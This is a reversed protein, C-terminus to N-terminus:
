VRGRYVTIEAKEGGEAFLAPFVREDGNRECFRRLNFMHNLGAMAYKNKLLEYSQDLLPRSIFLICKTKARTVTVNLRNLSYIFNAESMATEIDSVGYSAIVAQSEQGQMKDVTDVFPPHHWTMSKNLLKRILRIQAHHPCVIFLGSGWFQKHGKLTDPFTENTKHNIMCKKLYCALRATLDAEVMNDVTARVNDVICLVLPYDPDLAWKLFESGEDEAADCPDTILLKRGAIKATAPIYGNGYLTEAPFRSLTTNMRFNELLQCTYVNGSDRYRLYSFVSDYLGPLGDEPEPYEGQILPPLQMDDGALVLRGDTKLIGIVLSFEGFKMQSTEDVVLMDFQGLNTEYKKIAYVTGGLILYPETSSSAALGQSNILDFGDQSQETLRDLKGLLVDDSLGADTLNDHIEWLLNEIATHTFATVLIRFRKGASKYAQILAVVSKALFHTKGTGPPGWILTMRRTLVTDFAKEKSPMFDASRIYELAKSTIKADPTIVSSFGAPDRLLQLFLSDEEQDIEILKKFIKDSNYDMFRPHLIAKEGDEFPTHCSKYAINMIIERINGEDDVTYPSVDSASMLAPLHTPLYPRNRSQYDNMKMQQINGEESTDTLIARFSYSNSEFLGEDLPSDLEFVHAGDMTEYRYTLPIASGHEIRESMPLCREERIAMAGMFSEYRVIFGIQSLETHRFNAQSPFSFRQPYAFLRDKVQTRIGGLISGTGTLRRNVENRIADKDKEDGTKWYKFLPDSKMINSLNFWFFTNPTIQYDFGPSPLNKLIDPLRYTIHVPVALLERIVKSLVIIPYVVENAPQKDATSLVTEQFHFLLHLALPALAPVKLSDFLLRNFLTLEFGDFVYVQVSVQRAWEKGQNYDAIQKLTSFVNQLFETQAHLCDDANKAISVFTGVNNGLVEKDYATWRYGLVALRGSVPDEQLTLFFRIGESVPLAITSGGHSVLAGEELSKVTHMLRKRNNRLSGCSNLIDESAPDKLFERLEPITNIPEGGWEAERLYMRAPTSLYPILSVSHTREAEERCNEYFECWECRFNLHWFVSEIDDTFITELNFRLFERVISLSHSLEFIEPADTNYLWVFGRTLDVTFPLHEKEAIAELILAYLAIQIQHSQKLADSAKVDIVQLTPKGDIETMYLLDPRCPPFAFKETDIGLEKILSQPMVITPQYLYEGPKMTKLISLTEDLTHTRKHLPGDRDAIHIKGTIRNTIVEEEWEFGSQLIAALALSQQFKSEPIHIRTREEVPSANYRLHRDCGFYYYRAILSPSLNYQTM